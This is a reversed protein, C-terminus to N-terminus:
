TSSQAAALSDLEADLFANGFARGPDLRDRLVAFRAAGAPDCRPVTGGAVKGWHARPDYPALVRELLRVAEGVPGPEPRWTFHIAVTDRGHAGSLWLEDAAVTRLEHVMLVPAVQDAVEALAARAERIAARPVFYETQLEEGVSPVFEARFHPLREHWPGSVGGQETAPAPDIGPVPHVPGAASPRGALVPALDARGDVRQKVFVASVVSPDRLDDFVSVSHGSGMVAEIEDALADAPVDTWVTQAVDYAPETALWLRTVVGLAGLSVAAGPLDPHDADLRVVEGSATVLELGRVATALAGNGDGSGHTGTACAGAVSIHPLSGMNHLARGAAHLQAAVEAYTAGSPVAALGDADVEVRTGLGRTSLHLGDTDAVTSFSHRSGLARVRTGAAAAGAVAEQVGALDPPQVVGTSAYRVNGSWNLGTPSAELPAPSTM